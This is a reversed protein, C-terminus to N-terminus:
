LCSKRFRADGSKMKQCPQSRSRCRRSQTRGGTLVSFDLARENECPTGTISGLVSREAVVLHGASVPLPDKDADLLVLRGCPALGAMLSSVAEANGITAVIAKAPWM